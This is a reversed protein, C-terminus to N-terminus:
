TRFDIFQCVVNNQIIKKEFLAVSITRSNKRKRQENLYCNAQPSKRM